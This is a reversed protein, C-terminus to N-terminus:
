EYFQTGTGASFEPALQPFPGIAANVADRVSPITLRSHDNRAIVRDIYMKWLSPDQFADPLEKPECTKMGISSLPWPRAVERLVDLLPDEDSIRAAREALQPLFRLVLDTSYHDSADKGPTLRWQSIRQQTQEVSIERHVIAQCAVQVIGAARVALGVQFAPPMLPQQMRWLLEYRRLDREVHDQNFHSDEASIQLKGTTFLSNLFDSM